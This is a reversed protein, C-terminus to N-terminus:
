KSSELENIFRRIESEKFRVSRGITVKRLLGDDVVRYLGSRSLGLRQMVEPVTLLRELFVDSM